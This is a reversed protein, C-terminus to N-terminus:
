VGRNANVPRKMDIQIVAPILSGYGAARVVDDVGTAAGVFRAGHVRRGCFAAPNRAEVVHAMHGAAERDPGRADVGM